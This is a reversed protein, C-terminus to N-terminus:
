PRAAMSIAQHGRWRKTGGERWVVNLNGATEQGDGAQRLLGLGADIPAGRPQDLRDPTLGAAEAAISSSNRSYESEV